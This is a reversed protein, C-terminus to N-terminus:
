KDFWETVYPGLVMLGIILATLAAVLVSAAAVDKAKRVFENEDACVADALYEFATNLAESTWVLGLSFILACWEFETIEFYIGLFIVAVTAALPIRANHERALLLGLGRLAYGLRSLRAQLYFPKSQQRVLADARRKNKGVTKM